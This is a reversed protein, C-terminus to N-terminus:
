SNVISYERFIKIATLQYVKPCIVQLFIYKDRLHETSLFVNFKYSKPFFLQFLSSIEALIYASSGTGFTIWVIPPSFFNFM